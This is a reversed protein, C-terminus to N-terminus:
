KGSLTREAEAVSIMMMMPDLPSESFGCHIYFSNPTKRFPTCSSPACEPSQPPRYRGCCRMASCRRGLAVGRSAVISPWRGIIMVPIPEPMNRRIHGTAAQKVVSGAALCYFRAIRHKSVINIGVSEVREPAATASPKDSKVVAHSDTEGSCVGGASTLTPM